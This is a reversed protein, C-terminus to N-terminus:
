NSQMRRLSTELSKRITKPLAAETLKARAALDGAYLDPLTLGTDSKMTREFHATTIARLSRIGKSKTEGMTSAIGAVYGGNTVIPGGSVGSQAITSPALALVDAYPRELSRISEISSLDSAFKLKKQVEKYSLNEAPYGAITVKEGEALQPVSLAPLLPLAPFHEPLKTKKNKGSTVYLLAYDRDGSGKGDTKGKISEIQTTM